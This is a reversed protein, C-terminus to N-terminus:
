ADQKLQDPALPCWGAPPPAPKATRHETIVDMALAALTLGALTARQWLHAHLGFLWALGAIALAIRARGLVAAISDFWGNM